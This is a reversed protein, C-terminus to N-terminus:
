LFTITVKSLAKGMRSKLSGGCHEHSRGDEPINRPTMHLQKGVNQSLTDTGGNRKKGMM